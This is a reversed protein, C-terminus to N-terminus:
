DILTMLRNIVAHRASDITGLKNEPAFSYMLDNLHCLMIELVEHKALKKIFEPTSKGVIHRSIYVTASMDDINPAIYAWGERTDSLEVRIEWGLLGFKGTYEYVHTQFMHLMETETMM